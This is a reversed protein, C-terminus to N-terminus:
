LIWTFYLCLFKSQYWSFSCLAINTLLTGKTKHDWLVYETEGTILNNTECYQYMFQPRLKKQRREQQRTAEATRQEEDERAKRQREANKENRVTREEETENDRKERMNKSNKENRLEKEIATEHARNEKLFIANKGKRKDRDNDNEHCRAIAKGHADAEQHKKLLEKAIKLRERRLATAKRQQERRIQKKEEVTKSRLAEQRESDRKRKTKKKNMEEGETDEEIEHNKANEQEIIYEKYQQTIDNSCEDNSDGSIISIDDDAVSPLGSAHSLVTIVPFSEILFPALSLVESATTSPVGRYFEYRM